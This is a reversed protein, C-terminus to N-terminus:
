PWRAEEEEKEKSAELVAQALDAVTAPDEVCESVGPERCSRAAWQKPTEDPMAPERMRRKIVFDVM